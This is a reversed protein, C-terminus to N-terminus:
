APFTIIFETGEGERSEARITGNHEKTIIDYSLSLGLGTGQGTPKTTFFPQFIKDKIKEPIGGGNDKVSIVASGNERKTIVSITPFYEVADQGSEIGAITKALKGNRDACAYFANNFLNLLVRGADQPVINIKGLNPDFQTELKCNFYKDKARIGHYSLRLYEDCLANIDTPEKRGSSARSHQLMSKVIADARKGHYTIKESNAKIDGLINIVEELNGDNVEKTAEGIMEQNLESFNNVFNLPNQIEHAIGATLEGLSAMKESQVLHAQAEKLDALTKEVSAKQKEIEAKQSSLIRNLKKRQKINFLLVVVFILIAAFGAISVNRVTREKLIKLEQMANEKMLVAIKGSQKQLQLNYELTATNFSIKKDNESVYLNNLLNQYTLAEKYNDIKQYASSLGSYLEKLESPNGLTSGLTQAEKFFSIAKQTNGEAMQIKGKGILSSLIDTGSNFKKALTLAKEFSENAAPFNKELLYLKGIDNYTYANVSTGNGINIATDYYAHAKNYLKKTVYAEGINTYLINLSSTDNVEVAYPLAQSYYGIADDLTAPNKSYIVGINGLISAIRLKDKTEQALDLSRLYYEIAKSDEGKDSYLSGLNSLLNSIGIQDNLTEFINLSKNSNVLAGYYDGQQNNIIGMWKYAYAEGKRFKIKSAISQAQQAYGLSKEPASQFNEVALSILANVKISDDNAQTAKKILSETEANQSYLNVVFGLCLFLLVTRSIWEFGKGRYTFYKRTSHKRINESFIKLYLKRIM